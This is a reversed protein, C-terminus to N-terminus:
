EAIELEVETYWASNCRQFDIDNRVLQSEATKIGDRFSLRYIPVGFGDLRKEFVVGVSGEVPFKIPYILKEVKLKQGIEYKMENEQTLIYQM